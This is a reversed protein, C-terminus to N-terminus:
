AHTGTSALPAQLLGEIEDALIAMGGKNPDLDEHGSGEDPRKAAVISRVHRLTHALPRDARDEDLARTAHACLHPICEELVEAPLPTLERVFSWRLLRQPGRSQSVFGGRLLLALLARIRSVPNAYGSLVSNGLEASTADGKTRLRELIAVSRDRGISRRHLAGSM